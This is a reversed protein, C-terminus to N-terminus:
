PPRPPNARRPALAAPLLGAAGLSIKYVSTLLLPLAFTLSFIQCSYAFFAFALILCRPRRVVAAVEALFRSTAERPATSMAPAYLALLVTCASALLANAFWFKRWGITPLLPMISAGVLSPMLDDAKTMTGGATEATNVWGAASGNTTTWAAVMGRAVPDIAPNHPQADGRDQSQHGVQVHDAALGAPRPSSAGGIFCTEADPWRASAM